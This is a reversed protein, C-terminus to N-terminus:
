PSFKAKITRNLNGKKPLMTSQMEGDSNNQNLIQQTTEILNNIPTQYRM